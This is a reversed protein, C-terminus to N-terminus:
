RAGVQGGRYEVTVVNGAADIVRSREARITLPTADRGKVDFRLTGLLTENVAAFGPASGKEAWTLAVEGPTGEKALTVAQASWAPGRTGEVLTLVGPTFGIRLAIGHVDAVGRAFVDVALRTGESRGRLFVASGTEPPADVALSPAAPKDDGGCGSLLAASLALTALHAFRLNM